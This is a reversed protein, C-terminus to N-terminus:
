LSRYAITNIGIGSIEVGSSVEINIGIWGEVLGSVFPIYVKDNWLSVDSLISIEDRYTYTAFGAVESTYNTATSSSITAGSILFQAQPLFRELEIIEIESGTFPIRMSNNGRVTVVQFDTWRVLTFILDASGGEDLDIAATYFTSDGSVSSQEFNVIASAARYNVGSQETNGVILPSGGGQNGGGAGPTPENFGCGSVMILIAIVPFLKRMLLLKLYTVFKVLFAQICTRFM